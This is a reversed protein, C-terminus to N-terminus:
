ARGCCSSSASSTASRSTSTSSLLKWGATMTQRHNDVARSVTAGDSLRLLAALRPPVPRELAAALETLQQETVPDTTDYDGGGTAWTRHLEEREPDTLEPLESVPAELSLPRVLVTRPDGEAVVAEWEGSRDVTLEVTRDDFLGGDVLQEVEPHRLAASPTRRRGWASDLLLLTM